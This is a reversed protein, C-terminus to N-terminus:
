ECILLPRNDDDNPHNDAATEFEPPDCVPASTNAVEIDTPPSDCLVVAANTPSGEVATISSERSDASPKPHRHWRALCDFTIVINDGVDGPTENADVDILDDDSTDAPIRVLIATDGPDDGAECCEVDPVAVTQNSCDVAEHQYEDFPRSTAMAEPYPPPASRQAYIQEEIATIPSIHRSSRHGSPLCVLRYTVGLAVVLLLACSLSGVVAALIVKNSVTLLCNCLLKLVDYILLKILVGNSIVISLRSNNLVGIKEVIM